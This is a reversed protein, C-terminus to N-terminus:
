AARSAPRQEADMMRELLRQVHLPGSDVRIDATRGHPDTDILQQQHEIMEKDEEFTRKVDDHITQTITENDIHYNRCYSWLYLSKRSTLPTVLNISRAEIGKSRDGQPAGTATPACGVDIVVNGPASWEILQWRDVTGQFGSVKVFMPPAPKDIMWRQVHVRDGVVKTASPTESVYPTGITRGHLYTLHSLDMLNALVLMWDAEIVLSNGPASWQPHDNWWLDPILSEDAAQPDGMWIWSWRHRDVLPYSRVACNDPIQEQGPIRVCAGSPDFELGHYGCQLRDGLLQGRSLPARRHACRNSLAVPKGAETRYFVLPEDCIWRETLTRDIEHSWACPYWTNRPYRGQTDM